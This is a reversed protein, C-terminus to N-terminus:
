LEEIIVGINRQSSRNELSGPFCKPWNQMMEALLLRM